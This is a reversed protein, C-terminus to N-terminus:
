SETGEPVELKPLTELLEQTRMSVTVLRKILDVVADPRGQERLFDNPDNVIGSAKDTKVHYRDIIWELPSRGSISYGQAKAPIGTLTVYDNYELRTFDKDRRGLKPFRMKREGIRYREWPDAPAHLSAEEQVSPYPEVREYNVHLDALERGVSAYTHFGAARPIHPLMKKLDDEYRERYEPHHLLAYVYFFIDEKTIGADQYHERYSALTTDTVNDVRRYGDLLVPIQDGIPRSFDLSSATTAGGARSEPAAALDAFLDPESGSTPSLPEWTYLPFTQTSVGAGLLHLDPLTDSALTAFEKSSGEGTATLSLNPHTPLPFLQPLQYIMDNMERAFYVSQTCFPRYVSFRLAGENFLHHKRATLDRLLQRNWNIQTSDTNVLEAPTGADVEANYNDILRRMSSAVAQRSFNYCWADRSTALGRSFQRFIAPTTDKGKLSKNGIEQFTAFREDRTGIWDGHQNPTVPQFADAESIGEISGYAAIQELKEQRTAYDEAEAYFIDATGSHGPDKVLVTITVGTMIPFVNGGERKATNGIRGRVGGRLNFTFIQSFEEQLSLRVGDASNGDVFSSNSVFAIVGRERIRDSAWRLARFYSDYLSNKNAGTSKAAYTVAIREDLRPYALNQNNDNASNQGASYPPNMVIVTIASDKEARARENNAALGEFDETITGDGEHLQFTDTLTMGPFEVYGEDVGQEARVQHYVQEINISAIYYSLLVFENAFIENKYKHELAEPPIVGLQLLRAVFTGTGAFPEIISVGRDGLSQGFATRMADDASRIIFDVVEVPTFVIGLRESMRPFAQSFFHDYLTRMIEQKGALTHVAEIREVMARYFSDLERRENEIMSHDTLMELITNMARSVPNQKSFSHDPFMADFLPATLIHQALMEVASKNDVAPNLTARLADVFEQFADQREPDELLQEILSIYRGAVTAIDKSWDDWYLSSGVKKVIRGFVSEKWDSPLLTLQGQIGQAVGDAGSRAEAEDGDPASGDLPDDQKKAKGLSVQEVIINEPGQGNLEMSNIAADLREDHARLAKLVQWVVQFRNNDDLAREPAMGAPVAVPLIIYGFDKGEARRMVRGVAQIVDVQSKRPSLFLVADLTPVDVGESLCRANTLIRCVPVEDTGAGETLWDMERARVAANMTGDVHRCEVQLNDSADDNSLDSLGFPGNVLDPFQTAVAKSAKIDKCFAVARRMPARDEGYDVDSGRNKRKALANWCGTLKAATDLNLEGGMEAIAQYHQSVEEESVTLIIVKYDTLLNEKVAQGFGLRFFVPGYTEQDDMSTLIADKESARNKANEAFIRPTATMYLTKARRIFENSHIKTFASEDEGTLTAGTTRHAEDCIILDFDRWEDGAIEQARHIVEISQYTAFVVQLGETANNANLSDALRQGDTTAPIPLDVASEEATDNRASSSVKTDSCVAWATFAGDAEAAWNDLTQKLLALSPVAFLIRATGGEKEVFERAITLATFTKGTGCAMVMTGRDHEEFGAMVASRARVQHDRPVKRERTKPAQTSGLSYTRWDIDSDRLDALTIRSVPIQQGEIADQANKGWPAGSTDVVIRRGFPEKGSASLFSDIDAKQIRHGLAYFKCQIAVPGEGDQAPIAVLDIGTDGTRRQPWESWLYIEKFQHAFRADHLLFQRTLEEFLTGKERESKARARYEDLLADLASKSSAPVPDAADGSSRDIITRPAPNEAEMGPLAMFDDDRAATM